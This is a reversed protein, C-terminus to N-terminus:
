WARPPRGDRPMVALEDFAWGESQRIGGMEKAHDRVWRPSQGIAEAVEKASLPQLGPRRLPLQRVSRNGPAILMISGDIWIRAAEHDIDACGEHIAGRAADIAKADSEAKIKKWRWKGGLRATLSYAMEESM